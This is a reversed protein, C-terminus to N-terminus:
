GSPAAYPCIKADQRGSRVPPCAEAKPTSTSTQLEGNRRPNDPKLVPPHNQRELRARPSVISLLRIVANHFDLLRFTANPTIRNTVDVTILNLFRIATSSQIIHMTRELVKIPPPVMASRQIFPLFPELTVM